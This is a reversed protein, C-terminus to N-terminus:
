YAPYPPSPNCAPEQVQAGGPPAWTSNSLNMHFRYWSSDLAFGAIAPKSAPGTADSILGTYMRGLNCDYASPWAAVSLDYPSTGNKVEKWITTSTDLDMLLPNDGFPPCPPVDPNFASTKCGCMANGVLFLHTTNTSQDAPFISLMDACIHYGGGQTFACAGTPCNACNWSYSAGSQTLKLLTGGDGCAWGAINVGGVLKNTPYIYVARLHATTGSAQAVWNGSVGDYYIITGNDGVAWVEQSTLGPTNPRGRGHVANLNNSTPSVAKTDALTYPPNALSSAWETVSPGLAHASSSCLGCLLAFTVPRM